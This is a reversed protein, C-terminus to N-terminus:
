LADASPPISSTTGASCFSEVLEGPDLPHEEILKITLAEWDEEPVGDYVSMPAQARDLQTREREKHGQWAPWRVMWLHRGLRRSCMTRDRLPRVM